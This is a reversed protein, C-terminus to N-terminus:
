LSAPGMIYRVCLASGQKRKVGRELAELRAEEELSADFSDKGDDASARLQLPSCRSRGPLVKVPSCQQRALPKIQKLSVKPSSCSTYFTEM